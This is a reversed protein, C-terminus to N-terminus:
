PLESLRENLRQNDIESVNKLKPIIDHIQNNFCESNNSQDKANSFEHPISSKDELRNDVNVNLIATNYQINEDIKSEKIYDYTTNKNRENDLQLDPPHHTTDGPSTQTGERENRIEKVKSQSEESTEKCTEAGQRLTPLIENKVVTGETCSAAGEIITESVYCSVESPTSEQGNSSDTNNTVNVDFANSSITKETNRNTDENFLSKFEQTPNTGCCNYELKCNANIDETSYSELEYSTNNDESSSVFEQANSSESSLSIESEDIYIDEKSHQVQTKNLELEKFCNVISDSNKRTSETSNELNQNEEQINVETYVESTDGDTDSKPSDQKDTVSQGTQTGEAAHLELQRGKDTEGGQNKDINNLDMEDSELANVIDMPRACKKDPSTDENRNIETNSLDNQIWSQNIEIGEDQLRTTKHGPLDMKDDEESKKDSSCLVKLIDTTKDDTKNETQFEDIADHYEDEDQCDYNTNRGTSLETSNSEKSHEIPKIQELPETDAVIKHDPEMPGNLSCQNSSSNTNMISENETKNIFETKKKITEEQAESMRQNGKMHKGGNVKTPMLKKLREKKKEEEQKRREEEEEAKQQAFLAAYSIVKKPMKEVIQIEITFDKTEDFPVFEVDM